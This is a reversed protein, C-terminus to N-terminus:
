RVAAASRRSCRRPSHRHHGPPTCDVVLDALLCSITGDTRLQVGRVDNGDGLLGEVAAVDLTAVNGLTSVRWRLDLEVAALGHGHSGAAAHRSRIEAREVLTVRAFRDALLRAALLAATGAGIVVAHDTRYADDRTM